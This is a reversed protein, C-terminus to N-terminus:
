RCIVIQEPEATPRTSLEEDRELRFVKRADMTFRKVQDVLHKPVKSDKLRFMQDPVVYYPHVAFEVSNLYTWTRVL